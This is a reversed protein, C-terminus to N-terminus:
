LFKIFSRRRKHQRREFHKWQAQVALNNELEPNSEAMRIGFRRFVQLMRSILIANVGRGQYEKRVAVLLLDVRDNRRLARLIHLFGFPFLRGNAKQLAHTLSPLTVGFAAMRGEADLVVPVFEPSIVSFYQRIYSEVLDDSLPVAAYLAKYEESLMAFLERAYPLLDKKDKMELLRFGYRKQLTESLRIIKEDDQEPMPMEYEVWDIDKGYGLAELHHPYYPYNYITAQTALEDFGEVLMGAHDLNTFGLPGHVAELREERAWNEVAGLLAASVESDDIFDIWGFRMYRQGWKEIHRQNIIGAIRGAPRGDKYALWLKGRCFGFAPNHAASLTRREDAMLPPAWFPNGRYLTFPFRVFANLGTSDLVERIEVTIKGKDSIKEDPKM